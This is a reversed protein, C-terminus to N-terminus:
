IDYEFDIIGEDCEDLYTGTVKGSSSSFTFSEISHKAFEKSVGTMQITHSIHLVGDTYGFKSKSVKCKNVDGHRLHKLIVKLLMSSLSLENEIARISKYYCTINAESVDNKSAVYCIHEGHKQSRTLPIQEIVSNQQGARKVRCTM